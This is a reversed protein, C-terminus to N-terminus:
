SWLSYPLSVFWPYFILSFLCDPPSSQLYHFFIFSHLRFITTSLQSCFFLFYFISFSRTPNLTIPLLINHFGTHCHINHELYIIYIQYFIYLNFVRSPPCSFRNIVCMTSRLLIIVHLHVTACSYSIICKQRGIFLGIDGIDM